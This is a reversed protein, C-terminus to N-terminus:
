YYGKAKDIAIAAELARRMPSDDSRGIRREIEADVLAMDRKKRLKSVKSKQNPNM